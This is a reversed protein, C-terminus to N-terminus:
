TKRKNQIRKSGKMTFLYAYIVLPCTAIRERDAQDKGHYRGAAKIKPGEPRMEAQPRSICRQLTACRRYHHQHHTVM